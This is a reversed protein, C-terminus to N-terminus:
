EEREAALRYLALLLDEPAIRAYVVGKDHELCLEIRGTDALADDNITLVKDAEYTPDEKGNLWVSVQGIMQQKM